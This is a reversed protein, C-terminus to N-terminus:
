IAASAAVEAPELIADHTSEMALPYHHNTAPLGAQLGGDAEPLAAM